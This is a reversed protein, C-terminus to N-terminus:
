GCRPLFQATDIWTSQWGTGDARAVVTVRSSSATQIAPPHASSPPLIARAFRIHGEVWRQMLGNLMTAQPDSLNGKTLAINGFDPCSHLELAFIKIECEIRLDM